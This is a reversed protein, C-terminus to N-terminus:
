ASKLEEALELIRQIANKRNKGTLGECDKRLRDLSKHVRVMPTDPKKKPSPYMEERVRKINLATVTEDGQNAAEWVKRVGAEGHDRLVPVLERCQSETAPGDHCNDRSSLAQIVPAAMALRKAMDSGFEARLSKVYDEFSSFGETPWKTEAKIKSLAAAADTWSNGVSRMKARVVRDDHKFQDERNRNVGM